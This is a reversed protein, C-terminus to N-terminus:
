KSLDVKFSDIFHNLEALSTRATAVEVSQSLQMGHQHLVRWNSPIQMGATSLAAGVNFAEVHHTWRRYRYPGKGTNAFTTVEYIM